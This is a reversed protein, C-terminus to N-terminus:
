SWGDFGFTTDAADLADDLDTTIYLTRKLGDWPRTTRILRLIPIRATTDCLETTHLPDM